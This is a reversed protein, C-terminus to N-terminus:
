RGLKWQPWGRRPNAGANRRQSVKRSTALHTCTSVQFRPIELLRTGSDVAPGCAPAITHSGRMRSATASDPKRRTPGCATTSRADHRLIFNTARSVASSLQFCRCCGQSDAGPRTLLVSEVPGKRRTPALRTGSTLRSLVRVPGAADGAGVPHRGPCCRRSSARRVHQAAIAGSPLERGDDSLGTAASRLGVQELCVRTGPATSCTTIPRVGIASCSFPIRYPVRLLKWWIGILPELNLIVLM